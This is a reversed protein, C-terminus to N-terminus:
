GHDNDGRYTQLHKIAQTAVADPEHDKVTVRLVDIAHARPKGPTVKVIDVYAVYHTGAEIDAQSLHATM